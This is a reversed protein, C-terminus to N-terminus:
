VCFKFRRTEWSPKSDPHLTLIRVDLICPLPRGKSSWASWHISTRDSTGPSSLISSAPPQKEDRLRQKVFPISTTRKRKTVWHTPKPPNNPATLLCFIPTILHHLFRVTPEKSSQTPFSALGSLWVHLPFQAPMFLKLAFHVKMCAAM